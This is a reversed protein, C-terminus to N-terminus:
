RDVEDPLLASRVAQGPHKELGPDLTYATEVQRTVEPIEDIQPGLVDELDFDIVPQIRLTAKRIRAFHSRRRRRLRSPAGNSLLFFHDLFLHQGQEGAREVVVLVVWRAEGLQRGQVAVLHELPPAARAAANRTRTRKRGGGM